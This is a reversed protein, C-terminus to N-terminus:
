IIQINGILLFRYTFILIATIVLLFVNVKNSRRERILIFDSRHFNSQFFIIPIFIFIMPLTMIWEYQPFDAIFFVDLKVLILLISGFLWPLIYMKFFYENRKLPTEIYSRSLAMLFVARTSVFGILMLFLAALVAILVIIIDPIKMWLLPYYQENKSILRIIINGAFMNYAHLALWFLFIKYLGKKRYKTMFMGSFILALLLCGYSPYTFFRKVRYIDWASEPIRARVIYPTWELPMKCIYTGVYIAFIQYIFHMIFGALLFLLTYNIIYYFLKIRKRNDDNILKDNM